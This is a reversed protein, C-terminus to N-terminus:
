RKLNCKTHMLKCYEQICLYQGAIADVLSFWFHVDTFSMLFKPKEVTNLYIWLCMNNQEKCGGLLWPGRLTLHHLCFYWYEPFITRCISLTFILIWNGSWSVPDQDQLLFGRWDTPGLRPSPFSLGGKYGVGQLIRFLCLSSLHVLLLLILFCMGSIFSSSKISWKHNNKCSHHDQLIYATYRYSLCTAVLKPNKWATLDKGVKLTPKLGRPPRLTQPLTIVIGPKTKQIRILRSFLFSLPIKETYM